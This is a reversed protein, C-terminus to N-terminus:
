LGKHTPNKPTSKRKEKKLGRLSPSILNPSISDSHTKKKKKTM